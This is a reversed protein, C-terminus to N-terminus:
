LGFGAVDVSIGTHMVHFITFTKCSQHVDLILVQVVSCIDQLWKVPQQMREFSYQCVVRKVERATSNAQQIYSTM